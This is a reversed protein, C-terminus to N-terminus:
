PVIFSREKLKHRKHWSMLMYTELIKPNPLQTMVISLLLERTVQPYRIERTLSCMYGM